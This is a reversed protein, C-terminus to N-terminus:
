TRSAPLYNASFHSIEYLDNIKIKMSMTIAM